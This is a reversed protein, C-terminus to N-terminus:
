SIGIILAYSVFHCWLFSPISSNTPPLSNSQVTQSSIKIAATEVQPANWHPQCSGFYPLYVNSFYGISFYIKLIYM